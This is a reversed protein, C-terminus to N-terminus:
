SNRNMHREMINLLNVAYQELSFESNIIARGAEARSQLVDWKESLYEGIDAEETGLLGVGKERGFVRELALNSDSVLFCGHALGNRVRGHIMDPYTPNCNLVIKSDAYLAELEGAPIEGAWEINEKGSIEPIARTVEPKATVVIRFENPVGALSKLMRLRREKRIEWDILNLVSMWGFNAQTVPKRFRYPEGYKSEASSLFIELLTSDTEELARHFVEVGLEVAAEGYTELSEELRNGNQFFKHLGWPILLDISRESLPVIEQDRLRGHRLAPPPVREVLEVPNHKQYITKFEYSLSACPTLFLTSSACRMMRKWMFESYPHDALVAFVPVNLLDFLNRNVNLDAEVWLDYGMIDSFVAHGNKNGAETVANIFDPGSASVVSTAVGMKRIEAALNQIRIKHLGYSSGNRDPAVLHLHTLTQHQKAGATGNLKPTGNTVSEPDHGPRERVDGNTINQGEEQNGNRLGSILTEMESKVTEIGNTEQLKLDTSPSSEREHENQQEGSEKLLAVDINSQWEGEDLDNEYSEIRQSWMERLAAALHRGFRPGNCLPSGAVKPRMKERLQSLTELDSALEVAKEVYTDWSDAIWESFGANNLHTASHRGAFTPGPRTIVPVGMWISECTTLGGSYPWPDLAIDVRNYCALLESHPSQGEFQVRETSVGLRQLTATIRNQLAKTQYQRSKLFLRSDPVCNLIEAWKELIRDNVKTPNNFCGFTVYRNKLAPLPAVEPAVESPLYCIYGDPMRVLKETYYPEDGAPTEISDTIFFDVSELGTTNFQGGVWKVLVPAPELVLTRLRNDASHGSLEIMIDIKDERIVGAIVDDSYGLVSVWRDSASHIRRTIADVRSNTTYCYIEFQDKPLNELAPTIMRGVPHSWFGGSILGIRLKKDRSRVLPRPRNPRKEPAFQRDWLLHADFIEKRSRTPNYHLGMLLNSLTVPDNPDRKFAHAYQFEAEGFEGLELKCLAYNTRLGALKPFESILAEYERCAREYDGRRKYFEALPARAGPNNKNQDAVERFLAEAEIYSGNKEILKAKELIASFLGSDISVAISFLELAKAANGQDRYIVGCRYAVEANAPDIENAKQFCVLARNLQAQKHCIKGLLIWADTYAGRYQIAKRAYLEAQKLNNLEYQCQSLLYRTEPLDSGLDLSKKLLPVAASCKRKKLLGEGLYHYIEWEDKKKEM